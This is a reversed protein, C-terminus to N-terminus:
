GIQRSISESQHPLILLVSLAFSTNGTKINIAGHYKEAIAEVNSLGTGKRFQRKGRCSNEIEIFIFDGQMCGSVWIYKETEDNINKCACIANDLANSLIVCLDTDRVFCPCPLRLSCSVDIGMNKAIGLKNGVLIDAMPHNTSCPFSLGETIDGMDRIYDLAQESRGSQLLEKVVTIHNKIDHRFSKTKEYRAKAEEVYKNLFHKEQELLSLERSLCFDQSLKKYAFLVCFLSAMGLLQIVFMPCPDAYAANRCDMAYFDGYIVSNFYEGMWFLMWVPTLIMFIYQKEVTECCSFCRYAMRYCLAALLLATNGLLMFAPGIVSRDFPSLCPYLICLLSDFIGYSLQMIEITLASYLVASKWDAHCVFIGCVTLLVFYMLFDTIRGVSIVKMFITWLLVALLYFYLKVKKQLFGAFFYLGVLMQANGMICENFFDMYGDM